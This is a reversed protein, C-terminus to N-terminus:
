QRLHSLGSYSIMDFRCLLWLVVRWMQSTALDASEKKKKAARHRAQEGYESTSEVLEPPDDKAATRQMREDNCLKWHKPEPHSQPGQHHNDRHRFLSCRFQSACVMCRNNMRVPKGKPKCYGPGKGNQSTGGKLSAQHGADVPFNERISPRSISGTM